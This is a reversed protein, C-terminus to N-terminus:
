SLGRFAAAASTRNTESASPRGRKAGDHTNPLARVANTQSYVKVEQAFPYPVRLRRSVNYLVTEFKGLVRAADLQIRWSMGEQPVPVEVTRQRHPPLGNAMRADQHQILADVWIGNSLVETWFAYNFNAHTQNTLQVVAVLAGGPQQTFRLLNLTMSPAGPALSHFAVMLLSIALAIGIVGAIVFRFRRM